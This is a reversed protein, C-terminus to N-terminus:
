NVFNLFFVIFGFRNLETFIILGFFDNNSRECSTFSDAFKPIEFNPLQDIASQVQMGYHYYYGTQLSNIYEDETLIKLQAM